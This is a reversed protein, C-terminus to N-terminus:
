PNQLVKKALLMGPRNLAKLPLSYATAGGDSALHLATQDLV